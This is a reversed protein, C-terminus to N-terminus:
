ADNGDARVHDYVQQGVGADEIAWGCKLAVDILNVAEAGGERHHLPDEDKQGKEIM